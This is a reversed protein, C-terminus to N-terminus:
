KKVEAAKSCCAKETKKATKDCAAKAKDSCDAKVETACEVKATKDSTTKTENKKEVKQTQPAKETGQTQANLTFSVAIVFTLAVIGYVLKKM